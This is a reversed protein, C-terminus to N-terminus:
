QRPLKPFAQISGDTMLVIDNGVIARVRIWIAPATEDATLSVTVDRDELGRIDEPRLYGGSVLERLPVASDTTKRDRVFARVATEVRDHSLSRFAALTRKYEAQRRFNPVIVIIYAVVLAALLGVIILRKTKM